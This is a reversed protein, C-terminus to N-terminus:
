SILPVGKAFMHPTSNDSPCRAGFIKTVKWIAKVRTLFRYNNWKILNEGLERSPWICSTSITVTHSLCKEGPTLDFLLRKRTADWPRFLLVSRGSIGCGLSGTISLLNFIDSAYWFAKLIPLLASVYCNNCARFATITGRGAHISSYLKNCRETM